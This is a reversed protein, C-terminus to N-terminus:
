WGGTAEVAIAFVSWGARVQKSWGAVCIKSAINDPTVRGDRDGPRVCRTRCDMSRIAVVRLHLSSRGMSRFPGPGARVM